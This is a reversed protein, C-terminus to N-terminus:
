GQIHHQEPDMRRAGFCSNYSPRLVTNIQRYTRFGLKASMGRKSEPHYSNSPILEGFLM